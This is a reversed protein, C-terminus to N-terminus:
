DVRAFMLVTVLYSFALPHRTFIWTDHLTFGGKLALKLAFASFLAATVGLFDLALLTVVRILRRLTQIRLVLSTLVPPRKRRVDREPLHLPASGTYDGDAGRQTAQEHDIM